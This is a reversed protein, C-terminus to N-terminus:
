EKKRKETIRAKGAEIEASRIAAKKLEIDRSPIRRLKVLVKDEKSKKEKPMCMNESLKTVERIM